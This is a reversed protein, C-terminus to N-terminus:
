IPNRYNSRPKASRQPNLFTTITLDTLSSNEMDLRIFNDCKISQNHIKTLNKNFLDNNIDSGIHSPKLSINCDLNNCKIDNYLKIYNTTIDKAEMM